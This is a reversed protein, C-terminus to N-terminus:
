WWSEYHWQWPSNSCFLLFLRRFDEKVDMRSAIALPVVLLNVSFCFLSYFEGFWFIDAFFLNAFVAVLIIRLPIVVLLALQTFLRWRSTYISWSRDLIESFSLLVFFDDKTGM